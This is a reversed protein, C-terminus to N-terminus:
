SMPKESGTTLYNLGKQVESLLDEDGIQIAYPLLVATDCAAHLKAAQWVREDMLGYVQKFRPLSAPPFFLHAVALDTSPNGIQVDGWDIIGSIKADEMLLHRAQFDGHVLSVSSSEHIEANAVLVASLLQGERELGLGPFDQLNKQVKAVRNNLQTKITAQEEAGVASVKALDISHLALLLKAVPEVLTDRIEDSLRYKEASRGPLMVYGSFIHPFQESPAGIYEPIPVAIPLYSAIVPLVKNETALLKIADEHRPFRFVLKDNILYATNDWGSGLLQISFMKLEPFQEKLLLRALREDVEFDAQKSYGSM